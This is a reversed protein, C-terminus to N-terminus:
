EVGSGCFPCEEPLAAVYTEDVEAPVERYAITGYDDGAKRGPKKPDPKPPGKSFPAAQRKRGRQLREVLARLKELEARLRANGVKLAEIEIQDEAMYVNDDRRERFILVIRWDIIM